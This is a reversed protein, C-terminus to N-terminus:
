TMVLLGEDANHTLYYAPNVRAALFKIGIEFLILIQRIYQAFPLLFCGEFSGFSTDLALTLAAFQQNV